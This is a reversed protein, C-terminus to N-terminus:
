SCRICEISFPGPAKPILYVCINNDIVILYEQKVHTTFDSFLGGDQFSFFVNLRFYSQTVELHISWKKYAKMSSPDTTKAHNLWLYVFM